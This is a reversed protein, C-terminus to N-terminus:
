VGGRRRRLPRVHVIAGASGIGARDDRHAAAHDIDTELCVQGGDVRQQSGARIPSDQDLDQGLDILVAHPSNAQRGGLSQHAARAYLVGAPRQLRRDTFSNQPAHEVHEAVGDIAPRRWRRDFQAGHMAIRRRQGPPRCFRFDKFGTDLHDVHQHRELATALGAQEATRAHALRHQEGLQDVIHDAMLVPHANEAADAFATTFALFEVAVHLIGTHQRVHHHHEPLHVLRWARSESDAVRCQGHGLVETVVLMAVHQQQDVVDEAEDLGAHFHRAQQPLHWRSQAILRRQCGLQGPKFLADGIGIGARDRRDLRHVNRGIVQGVRGRHM